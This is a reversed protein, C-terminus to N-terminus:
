ESHKREGNVGTIELTHMMEHLFTSGSTVLNRLDLNNKDDGKRADYRHEISERQFFSDCCWIYSKNWWWSITNNVYCRNVSM